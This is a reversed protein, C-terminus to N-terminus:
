RVEQLTKDIVAEAIRYKQTQKGNEVKEAIVLEYGMADLLEVLIAVSTSRHCQEADSITQRAVGSQESLQRQSWGRKWRCSRVADGLNMNGESERVIRRHSTRQNMYTAIDVDM